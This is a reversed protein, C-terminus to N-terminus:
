KESWDRIGKKWELELLPVVSKYVEVLKSAILEIKDGLEPLHSVIVEDHINMPLVCYQGVGPPQLDWIARQLAKCIEAGTSQIVHNAAARMSSAQIQFACGYLATQTAGSVTQNRERRKVIRDFRLEPPLKQALKFLARCVDNELTFYRRFGLLSEIHNAPEHWEVTTGIGGPQQMACFVRHIARRASAWDPYKKSLTEIARKSAAESAGSAEAIREERAGYFLAFASTKSKDYKSDKTGKSALIEDYPVDYLSAGFIGHFSKGSRLDTELNNDRCHGHTIAVEFSKFDGGSTTYGNDSFMFLRRFAPNHQIGQPNQSEGSRELGGGSMRGSKTGIVKFDPCFRTISDLQQLLKREKAARRGELVIKARTAISEDPFREIIKELIPAGTGTVAVKQLRGEETDPLGETIWRKVRNPSDLNIPISELIKTNKILRKVIGITDVSYGHWRVAGVCAALESDNDGPEPCGFHHYLRELLIVDQEAYGQASKNTYWYDINKRIVEPWGSTYPNYSDEEPYLEKPLPNEYTKVKFIEQCLPKLGGSPRFKLVVNPFNSDPKKADEEVKWEYGTQSKTFYIAPFSIYRTLYNALKQAIDIPIRRLVINRRAMLNQWRTKRSHLFLDLCARPRLCFFRPQTISIKSIEEIDPTRTKDRVM